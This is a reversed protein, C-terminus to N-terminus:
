KGAPAKKSPKAAVAAGTQILHRADADPTELTEGIAHPEGNVVKGKLLTIEM